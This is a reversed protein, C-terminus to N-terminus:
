MCCAVCVQPGYVEISEVAQRLDEPLVDPNITSLSDLGLPTAEPDVSYLIQHHTHTHVAAAAPLCTAPPLLCHCLPPSLHQHETTCCRRCPQLSYAHMSTHEPAGQQRASAYCAAATCLWLKTSASCTGGGEEVCALSEAARHSAAPESVERQQRMAQERTMGIEAYYEDDLVIEDLDPNERRSAAAAARRSGRSSSGSSGGSCTSRTHTASPTTTNHCTHKCQLSPRM